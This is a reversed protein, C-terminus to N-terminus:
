TEDDDDDEGKSWLNARVDALAALEEIEALFDDDSMETDFVGEVAEMSKSKKIVSNIDEIRRQLTEAKGVDNPSVAIDVRTPAQSTSDQRAFRGCFQVINSVESTFEVVLALKQFSLSIGQQLAHTTGVILSAESKRADALLSDRVAPLTNGMILAGGTRACIEVATERLHTYIGIHPTLHKNAEYWEVAVDVLEQRAKVPLQEVFLPPLYRAFDAQVVRQSIASFRRELEERREEKLGYFKTGYGDDEHHCFRFVFEFPEYGKRRSVGWRGPFFTDVPNWLQKAENPIPTGSLGLAMADKHLRFLTRVTQSQKSMPSRLAHFEDVIIFDFKPAGEPFEVTRLLDYSTIQIDAARAETQEAAKKKSTSRRIGVDIVGVSKEPWFSHVTSRWTERVIAPCVILVRKADMDKAIALSGITKGAGMDWALFLRRPKPLDRFRHVAESQYPRLSVPKM